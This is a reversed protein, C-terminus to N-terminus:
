KRIALGAAVAFQSRLPELSKADIDPSIEFKSFPDWIIPKMGFNEELYDVIGGLRTTGGSIYIENISKGNQNEYYGFSLRLEDALNNLVSKAAEFIETAKDKPDFIFKDAGKEEIKLHDSIAKSIDRAGIQIDRTFFPSEGQAIIVNTQTYGINLVAASKSGDLKGRSNCLANFCAFGDIDVVSVSSGLEKLTAIKSDVADKKAAALLVRMDKSHGESADDLISADIFVENINFPIYKEAEFHLSNKLDEKTMKPMSIFRVIASPAALSINVEKVSPQFKDFLSKLAKATKESTPPTDIEVVQIKNLRQTEGEQSVELAKILRAGIDLGVHTEKRKAAKKKM